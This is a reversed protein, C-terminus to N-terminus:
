EEEDERITFYLIYVSRENCSIFVALHEFRVFPVNRELFRALLYCGGFQEIPAFGVVVANFIVGTMGRVLGGKFIFSFRASLNDQVQSLHFVDCRDVDVAYFAACCPVRRM